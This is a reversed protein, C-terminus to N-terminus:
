VPWISSRETSEQQVGIESSNGNDNQEGSRSRKEHAVGHTFQLGTITHIPKHIPRVSRIKTMVAGRVNGALKDAKNKLRM